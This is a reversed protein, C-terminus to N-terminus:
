LTIEVQQNRKNLEEIQESVPFNVLHLEVGRSDMNAGTQDFFCFTLIQDFNDLEWLYCRDFGTHILAYRNEGKVIKASKSINKKQLFALVLPHVNESKQLGHIFKDLKIEGKHQQAVNYAQLMTMPEGYKEVAEQLTQERVPTIDMYADQLFYTASIREIFGNNKNFYLEIRQELRSALYPQFFSFKLKDSRYGGRIRGLTGGKADLDIATALVNDGIRVGKIDLASKSSPKLPPLTFTKDFRKLGELQEFSHQKASVPITWLCVVLISGIITRFKLVPKAGKIQGSIILTVDFHNIKDKLALM